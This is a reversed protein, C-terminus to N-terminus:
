CTARQSRTLMLDDQIVGLHLSEVGISILWEPGMTGPHSNSKSQQSPRLVM